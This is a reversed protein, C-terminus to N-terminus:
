EPQDADFPEPGPESVQESAPQEEVAVEPGDPDAAQAQAAAAEEAERRSAGLAESEERDLEEESAGHQRKLDLHQRIADELVGMPPFWVSVAPSDKTPRLWPSPWMSATRAPASPGTCPPM